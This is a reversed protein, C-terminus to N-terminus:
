PAAVEPEPLETQLDQPPLRWVWRGGELMLQVRLNRGEDLSLMMYGNGGGHDEVAMRPRRGKTVRHWLRAFFDRATLEHLSPVRRGGLQDLVGQQQEEDLGRLRELEQTFHRRSSSDLLDYLGEYARRNVAEHWHREFNDISPDRRECGVVALALAVVIGTGILVVRDM